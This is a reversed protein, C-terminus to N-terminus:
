RGEKLGLDKKIGGKLSPATKLLTKRKERVSYLFASDRKSATWKNQGNLFRAYSLRKGGPFM